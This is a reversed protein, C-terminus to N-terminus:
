NDVSKVFLRWGNEVDREVVDVGSEIKSISSVLTTMTDHDLSNIHTNVGIGLRNATALAVEASNFHSQRCWRSIVGRLTSLGYTECYNHLMLFMARYGWTTSIFSKYRAPYDIVYEDSRERTRERSQERKIEGRLPSVSMPIRGPNNGIVGIHM